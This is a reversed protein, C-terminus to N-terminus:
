LGKIGAKPDQSASKPIADIFELRRWSKYPVVKEAVFDMVEEISLM